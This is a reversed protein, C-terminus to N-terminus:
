QVWHTRDLSTQIHITKTELFEAMGVMGKERGLGSQKRGGFPLQVSGLGFDNVYVTGACLAKAVRVARYVDRTWLGAALGYASDNAIEVAEEETDFTQVALVPGFIEEQAICAKRGVADFITPELFCGRDYIGGTLRRGGLVLKAERKGIEIYDLITRCQEESIIAGMHVETMPDGVTLRKTKDILRALFEDHISRQLLLRTGGDCVAGQNFFVNCCAADVADDMNEVDEFVLHPSKGGLELSVHKLSDAANKLVSRGVATSGTFTVKDVLPSRALATGVVSGRGSVLNLVGDPLGAKQFLLCVEAVISNTLEAPKCVMTCGAALAPAVKFALMMIPFNWPVIAAAVGVPERTVLADYSGSIAYTEGHIELALHAFHDFLNATTRIEGRSQAIPKGTEETIIKALRELDKRMLEATDHLVQGREAAAMKPWPGHDFAERAARVALETEEASARDHRSVAEGTAPNRRTYCEGSQSEVWAGGIWLHYQRMM